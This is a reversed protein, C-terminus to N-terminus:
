VLKMNSGGTGGVADGKSRLRLIKHVTVICIVGIIPYSILM